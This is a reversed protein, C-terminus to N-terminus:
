PPVARLGVCRRPSIAAPRSAAVPHEAGHGGATPRTSGADDSDADADTAVVVVVVVVDGVIVVVVVVVIVGMDTSVVVVLVGAVLVDAVLVVVTGADVDGVTGSTACARWAAAGTTM